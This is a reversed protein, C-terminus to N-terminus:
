ELQGKTISFLILNSIYSSPHLDKCQWFYTQICTVFFQCFNLSKNRDCIFSVWLYINLLQDTMWVKHVMVMFVHRDVKTWTASQVGVMRYKLLCFLALSSSPESGRESSMDQLNWTVAWFKTGAGYRAAFPVFFMMNRIPLCIRGREEWIPSWRRIYFKLLYTSANANKITLVICTFDSFISIKM